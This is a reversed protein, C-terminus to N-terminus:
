RRNTASIPRRPTSPVATGNRGSYQRRTAFVKAWRPRFPPNPPKEPEQTPSYNFANDPKKWHKWGLFSSPGDGVRVTRRPDLGARGAGSWWPYAGARQTIRFRPRARSRRHGDRHPAAGNEDDNGLLHCVSGPGLGPVGAGESESASRSVRKARGEGQPQLASPAEVAETHRRNSPQFRAPGCWWWQRSPRRRKRRSSASM